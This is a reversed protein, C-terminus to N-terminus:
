SSEVGIVEVLQAAGARTGTPRPRAEGDRDDTAPHHDGLHCCTSATLSLRGFM